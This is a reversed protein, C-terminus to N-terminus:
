GAAEAGAVVVDAWVTLGRGARRTGWRDALAATILLGRGHEQELVPLGVAGPSPMPSYGDGEDTVGFTVMRSTLACTVTITRSDTHELANAVFEGTITELDDTTGAPLGWSRATERVYRRAASASTLDRGRLTLLGFVRSEAPSHALADYLVTPLSASAPRGERARRDRALLAGRSVAILLVDQLADALQGALGACEAGGGPGCWPLVERARGLLREALGLQVDEIRDALRSAPGGDGDTLLLCPQGHAGTWPLLRVRDAEESM